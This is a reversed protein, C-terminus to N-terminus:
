DILFFGGIFNVLNKKASDPRSNGMLLTSTM